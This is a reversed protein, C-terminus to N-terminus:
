NKLSYVLLIIILVLLILVCLIKLLKQTIIRRDIIQMMREGRNLESNIEPLENGIKNLKERNAELEALTKIGKEETRNSIDRAEILKRQTQDLKQDSELLRRKPDNPDM